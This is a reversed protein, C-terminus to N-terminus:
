QFQASRGTKLDVSFIGQGITALIIESGPIYQIEYGGNTSGLPVDGLAVTTVFKLQNSDIKYSYIDSNGFLIYLTNDSVSLYTSEPSAPASIKLLDEFLRDWEGSELDVRVVANESSLGGSVWLASGEDDYQIDSVSTFNLGEYVAQPLLTLEGTDLNVKFLQKGNSSYIVKGSSSMAMGEAYFEDFGSPKLLSIATRNGTNLNVAYLDSRSDFVYATDFSSDIVMEYILGINAGEGVISDHFDYNDSTVIKGRGSDVSYKGIADMYSFYVESNVSDFYSHGYGSIVSWQDLHSSIVLEGYGSDNLRYINDTLINHLYVSTAGPFSIVSRFGHIQHSDIGSISKDVIEGTSKDFSIIKDQYADVQLYVTDEDASIGIISRSQPINEVLITRDGSALDVKYLNYPAETGTAAIIYFAKDSSSLVGESSYYFRDGSGRPGGSVETLAASGPDVRYLVHIQEGHFDIAEGNYGSATYYYIDGTEKDSYLSGGPGGWSIDDVGNQKLDYHAVTTGTSIRHVWMGLHSDASYIRDGVMTLRRDRNAAEVSMLPDVIGTTFDVQFIANAPYSFYYAEKEQGIINSSINGPSRLVRYDDSHLVTDGSLLSVRITNILSKNLPIGDARWFGNEDVDVSVSFGDKTVRIGDTSERYAAKISGVFDIDDGFYLSDAGPYLLTSAYSVEDPIAQEAIEAPDSDSGSAGGSSNGCGSLLIPIVFILLSIKM